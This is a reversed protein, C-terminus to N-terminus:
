KAPPTAKDEPPACGKMMESRNQMTSRTQSRTQSQTMNQTMSQMQDGQKMMQGRMQEMMATQDMMMSKLKAPDNEAQMAAMRETMKEMNDSMQQNQRMMNHMVMASMTPSMMGGTAQGPQGPQGPQAQASPAQADPRPAGNQAGTQTVAGAGFVALAAAMMAMKLVNHRM